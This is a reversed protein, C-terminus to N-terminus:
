VGRNNNLIYIEKYQAVIFDALVLFEEYSIYNRSGYISMFYQMKNEIAKSLEIKTVKSDVTQLPIGKLVVISNSDMDISDLKESILRLIVENAM